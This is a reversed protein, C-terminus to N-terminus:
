RTVDIRTGGVPAAAPAGPGAPPGGPGRDTNEAANADAVLKVWLATDDRFWSTQPAEKLAALSNQQTGASAGAFEPLEFIVYSGQDMESLSLTL